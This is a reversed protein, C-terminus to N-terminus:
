GEYLINISGADFTDTGNVTTIRVRDLTGSITYVGGSVIVATAYRAVTGSSIWATSTQLFLQVTGWHSDVAASGQTALFGTTSSATGTGGGVGSSQSVYGTTAISGAGVQIQINSTGSVSVGNFM